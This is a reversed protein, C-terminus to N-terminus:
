GSQLPSFERAGPLLALTPTFGTSAQPTESIVEGQLEVWAHGEQGKFGIVLSPKEGAITLFRYYLLSQALCDGRQPIVKLKKLWYLYRLLHETPIAIRKKSRLAGPLITKVSLFTLGARM